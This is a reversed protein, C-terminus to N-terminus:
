GLRKLGDLVRELAEVSVPAFERGSSKASEEAPGPVEARVSKARAEAATKGSTTDKAVTDKTRTDDPAPVPKRRPM